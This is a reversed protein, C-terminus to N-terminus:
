CYKPLKDTSTLNKAMEDIKACLGGDQDFPIAHLKHWYSRMLGLKWGIPMPSSPISADFSTSIPDTVQSMNDALEDM